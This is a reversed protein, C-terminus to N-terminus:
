MVAKWIEFQVGEAGKGFSVSYKANDDENPTSCLSMVRCCGHTACEWPPDSPPRKECEQSRRKRSKTKPNRHVIKNMIEGNSLDRMTDMAGIALAHREM